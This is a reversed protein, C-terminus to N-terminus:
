DSHARILKRNRGESLKKVRATTIRRKSPSVVDRKEDKGMMEFDKAAKFLIKFFIIAFAMVSVALILDNFSTSM